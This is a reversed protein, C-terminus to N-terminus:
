RNNDNQRLLQPVLIRQVFGEFVSTVVSNNRASLEYFPINGNEECWKSIEETTVARTGLDTKNAIVLFEASSNISRYIDQMRYFSDANTVDFVLIVGKAGRYYASIIGRYKEDGATDWVQLKVNEGNIKLARSLFEVGITSQYSPDFRGDGFQM